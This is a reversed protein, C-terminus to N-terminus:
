PNDTTPAPLPKLPVGAALLERVTTTQGRAAAEYLIVQADYSAFRFKEARLAAVLGDGGEIWRETRAVADVEDELEVIVSPM